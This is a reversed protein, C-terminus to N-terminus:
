YIKIATSREPSSSRNICKNLRLLLMRKVGDYCKVDVIFSLVTIFSIMASRFKPLKWPNRENAHDTEM